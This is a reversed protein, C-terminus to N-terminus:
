AFQCLWARTASLETYGAGRLAEVIDRGAILAIPHGDARVESYVQQHFYSTTVLVGFHRHRIRSILRAVERVGVLKHRYPVDAEVAYL